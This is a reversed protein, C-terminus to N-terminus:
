IDPLTRAPPLAQQVLRSVKEITKLRRAVSAQTAASLLLRAAM